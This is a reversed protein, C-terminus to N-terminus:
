FVMSQSGPENTVLPASKARQTRQRIAESPGQSDLHGSRASPFCDRIRSCGHQVDNAASRLKAAGAVATSRMDGPDSRVGRSNHPRSSKLGPAENSHRTHMNGCDSQWNALLSLFGLSSSWLKRLPLQEPLNISTRPRTQFPCVRRSSTCTGTPTHLKV